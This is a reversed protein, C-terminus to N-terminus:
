VDGKGSFGFFTKEADSGRGNVLNIVGYHSASNWRRFVKITKNIANHDSMDKDRRSRPAWEPLENGKSFFM